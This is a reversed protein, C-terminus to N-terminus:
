RKFWGTFQANNIPLSDWATTVPNQYYVYCDFLCKFKSYDGDVDSEQVIDSFAVSQFNVSNQHSVWEIGQADRYTVEFGALAGDSYPPNVMIKYFDNFLTLTPVDAAYADWAVSGLGLKVFQTKSSSGMKAYYIASSLDPSPVIIKTKSTYCTYGNVNQTWKIDTGNITGQFYCYLDVKKSPAPIIEHKMCSGFLLIGSLLAISVIKINKMM